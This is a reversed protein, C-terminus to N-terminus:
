MYNNRIRLKNEEVIIISNPYIETKLNLLQQYVKIVNEPNIKKLRFYIIGNYKKGEFIPLKGFDNDHTLIFRHEENAIEILEEDTKGILNQTKTDLVDVEQQRLFEVVKPSINEDALIRINQFIM